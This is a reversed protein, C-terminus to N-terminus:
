KLSHLSTFVCYKNGITDQLPLKFYCFISIHFTFDLQRLITNSYIYKTVNVVTYYTFLEIHLGKEQRVMLFLFPFSAFHTKTLLTSITSLLSQKPCSHPRHSATECRKIANTFVTPDWFWNKKVISWVVHHMLDLCLAFCYSLQWCSSFMKQVLKTIWPSCITM